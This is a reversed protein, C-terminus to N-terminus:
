TQKSTNLHYSTNVTTNNNTQGGVNNNKGNNRM